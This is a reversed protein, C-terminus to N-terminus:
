VTYSGSAPPSSAAPTFTVTGSNGSGPSSIQTNVGTPVLSTTLTVASVDGAPRTVTVGVSGPTGDQGATVSSVSLTVTIPGSPPPSVPAGGGGCSVAVLVIGMLVVLLLRM